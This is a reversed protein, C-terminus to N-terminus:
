ALYRQQGRPVAVAHSLAITQVLVARYVQDFEDLDAEADAQQVAERVHHQVFELVAPQTMAVVDDSEYVEFPDGARLEEDAELTAIALGLSEADIAELRTPFAERFALYVSVTLFYGLSQALEDQRQSVEEALWAALVPQRRDLSRYGDDLASQLAEEEDGLSAEVAELTDSPVVAWSPVPRLAAKRLFM